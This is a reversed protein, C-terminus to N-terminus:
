VLNPFDISGRGDELVHLPKKYSQLLLSSCVVSLSSAAMCAGALWPPLRIGTFPFLIGAAIPMALVNYGLAWVYNLRIRSLTKRSLDIATVVDELNSKILVVDAAEIAVDTGAGIAMGVDAAVLAPSDNIGDGVMAVADGKMQLEKIKDAKGLPDTEAFVTHIGVEKAIATATAWNDGTVMISTIGMSRLFSIVREAEPKVPDTVAFAGSVMGDVAVLVCTRALQESESMYEQVEPNVPINHAKMLRKNGVLVMKESVMGGVGSGPYVEFDKVENVHEISSGYQQHLKKAHAVIAKAIPHESNAEAIAAMDCFEQIAMDSFLMTSVVLPKWNRAKHAKELANGGKILVGQSAGIGTSVMVATPTALGLACPCAVVLVSIGFQLALEFGDMAKPIWRKPYVGAEGFVFWGLWTMLAAVVVTPVFFKSIQDALKQVPARALQAAEVLQVIQSLATESGVHTAKVLLCGNENMTGGIVKDGPRKAIPRAEGTIMSENVHSQGRVVIGDIPVKSGPVIKIIDNRQILQTSIENESIVNGNGDLSLLFATEPTLDTLKALAESTKGKAVVELYKGLLIFSILMTSTEFFDQGEFSNSSLAKVLSYVSYFYAANTGLSVLVDMNTSGRKLAHYAGIYFRRGVIFQVPTCLLWRLLMGITFMNHLKHSLWNGYPPLMPLIMSFTFVPISFLCSWLFQNRYGQIEHQREAEGRRPPVYLTAHYLSPSQGAEQICEILSRPGTLDPDYVITVKKGSADMEFHNVGENSGLASQIINLDDPSNIGELKLHVKNINDGSSILDAGFGADEVAEILQDSDILTPDFHIKAEELALGVVVKKVGDVMLLAREISESCSTCAMGKIRLRCVAIDQEQIENALYGLDEITEKIAQVTILEPIFRIVAQGQLPSVVVSEIGNRKGLVSEISVACSACKMGGVKFMVTRSKKHEKHDPQSVTVAVSETPQLLPAKLDHKGNVGIEKDQFKLMKELGEFLKM